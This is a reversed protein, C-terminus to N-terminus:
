RSPSPIRMAMQTISAMQADASKPAAIAAAMRIRTTLRSAAVDIPRGPTRMDAFLARANQLNAEPGLSAAVFAAARAVAFSSGGVPTGADPAATFRQVDDNRADRGNPHNKALTSGDFIGDARKNITAYYSSHGEKYYWGDVALTDQYAAPFPVDKSGGNGLSAVVLIGAEQAAKNFATMGATEKPSVFTTSVVTVHNEKFWAISERLGKYNIQLRGEPGEVFPNAVFISYPREDGTTRRVGAISELVLDGHTNKANIREEAEKHGEVGFHRYTVDLGDFARTTRTDIVGVVVSSAAPSAAQGWSPQSTAAMIAMAAVAISQKTRPTM